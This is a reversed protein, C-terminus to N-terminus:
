FKFFTKFFNCQTTVQVWFGKSSLEVSWGSLQQSIIFFDESYVGYTYSNYVM